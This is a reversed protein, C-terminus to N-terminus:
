VLPFLRVKRKDIPQINIINLFEEGFAELVLAGLVSILLIELASM